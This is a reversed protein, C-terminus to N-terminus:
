FQTITVGAADPGAPTITVTAANPGAPTITVSGPPIVPVPTVAGATLSGTGAILSTGSGKHTGTDALVGAGTVTSSGTGAHAGTGALSGTATIAAPGTADKVGASAFAGTGATACSGSTDKAGGATLAGIGAVASEGTVAPPPITAPPVPQQPHRFQRRWTQGPQATLPLVPTDGGSGAPSVSGTGTIAPTGSAGKVGASALSGTGAIASSGTANKGGASALSGTGGIAAPAVASAPQPLALQPHRFQRRWTQGPAAAVAPLPVPITGTGTLSGTGTATSTGSTDKTGTDALSGTGTVASAASTGKTGTDALAGTGTVASSGTAARTGTDALTGTGSIASSGTAAKTGTNALSGTATVMAAAAANPVYPLVQQRHQFQRRWTQGAQATLPLVPTDGGSGSPILSGTGTVTGTGSGAHTGTDALTGTGTVDSSNAANKVGTDALTGTGSVSSSGTANKVGTDGLSGTGANASPDTASPAAPQLAQQRHQFARQWTQGPLANQALASSVVPITTVEVDVGFDYGTVTNTPFGITGSQLYTMQGNVSGASSPASLPGNTIGSSGGGSTWFGNVDYYVAGGTEVVAVYNTGASLTPGSYTCKVWGSGAAGSWTPSNNLTGPIQAQTNANYLACATPLSASSAGSYWWIGTLEVSQSVSFQVGFAYPTPNGSSSLGYTAGSHLTYATM